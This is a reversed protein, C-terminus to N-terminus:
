HVRACRATHTHMYIFVLIYVRGTFGSGTDVCQRTREGKADSCQVTSSDRPGPQWRLMLPQRLPPPLPLCWVQGARQRDREERREHDLTMKAERVSDQQTLRELVQARRPTDNPPLCLRLRCPLRARSPCAPLHSVCRRSNSKRRSAASGSRLCKAPSSSRCPVQPGKLINKLMSTRRKRM